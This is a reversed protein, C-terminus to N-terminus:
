ALMKKRYQPLLYMLGLINILLLGANIIDAIFWIMQVNFFVGAAASASYIFPVLYSFRNGTIANWTAVSVYAFSVIVGIGFLISLLSIIYGAYSGFATEYSAITLASSTAGIDYVGSLVICFGVLFCIITTCFVSLMGLYANDRANSEGTYGFMIAATGLGAESAFVIGSMGARIAQFFSFTALGTTFSSVSFAAKFIISLAYPISAFNYFIVGFASFLFLGVKLPVLVASATSIRKAGGFSIYLVFLFLSVAVIIPSVGITRSLSVQISNAQISSGGCLAYPFCLLAYIYSLVEGSPLELLYLM